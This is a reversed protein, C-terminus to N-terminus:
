FSARVDLDGMGLEALRRREDALREALKAVPWDQRAALKAGAIRLALPLGGCAAVVALAAQQEAAVREGGAIKGLLELAQEPDLIDVLVPKGGLTAIATRSTVVVACTSSGPLLPRVQAEDHANDLVVLVRKGALQHRWLSAKGDLTGTHQEAPVGRMHLLETLAIEAALPQQDTGRLNVYIQGDPFQEALHHALHIALTSKGVGPKGHVASIVVAQRNASLLQAELRKVEADRGTFDLVDPPLFGLPELQPAVQQVLRDIRAAVINGSGPINIDRGAYIGGRPDGAAQKAM